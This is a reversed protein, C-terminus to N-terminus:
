DSTTRLEESNNNILTESEPEQKTSLFPIEESITTTDTSEEEANTPAQEVNEILKIDEKKMFLSEVLDVFSMSTLYNPQEVDDPISSTEIETANDDTNVTTAADVIPTDSSLNSTGDMSVKSLASSSDGFSSDPM